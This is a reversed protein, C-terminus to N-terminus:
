LLPLFSQWKKILKYLARRQVHSYHCGKRKCMKMLRIDVQFRATFWLPGQPFTTQPTFMQGAQPQTDRGETLKWILLLFFLHYAHYCLSAPSRELWIHHTWILTKFGKFVPLPVCCGGCRCCSSCVDTHMWVLSLKSVDSFMRKSGIFYSLCFVLRYFRSALVLVACGGPFRSSCAAHSNPTTAKSELTYKRLVEAFSPAAEPLLLMNWHNTTSEREIAWWLALGTKLWFPNLILM